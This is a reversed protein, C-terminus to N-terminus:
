SAKNIEFITPNGEAVSDYIVVIQYSSSTERLVTLGEARTNKKAPIRSLLKIQPAPNLRPLNVLGDWFYVQFHDGDEGTADALILFGEDVSVMDRVGNGNLNVSFLEYKDNRRLHEFKVAIIPVYNDQLIPTRFGFFLRDKKVAIGEIDVGNKQHKVNVYQRLIRDQELITALSSRKISSKLKGTDSDLEFRFVSQRNEQNRAKRSVSHSGTVYVTNNSVAIGEIDIEAQSNSLLPLEINSAVRYKSKQQNPELVQVVNGEDAGILIYKGVIAIASLDKDEVIKGAFKIKDATLNVTPRSFTKKLSFLVIPILLIVCGVLNLKTSKNSSEWFPIKM